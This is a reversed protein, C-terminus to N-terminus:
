RLNAWRGGREGISLLYSIVLIMAAVTMLAFMVFLFADFPAIEWPAYVKPTV